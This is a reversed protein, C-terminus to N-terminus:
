SRGGASNLGNFARVEVIVEGHMSEIRQRREVIHRAVNFALAELRDDEITLVTKQIGQDKVSVEASFMLM